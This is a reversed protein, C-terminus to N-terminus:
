LEHSEEGMVSKGGAVGHFVSKVRLRNMRNVNVDGSEGGVWVGDNLESQRTQRAWNTLTIFFRSLTDAILCQWPQFCKIFQKEGLPLFNSVTVALIHFTYFTYFTYACLFYLISLVYLLYLVHLFYSVYLLIFSLFNSVSNCLWSTEFSLLVASKM